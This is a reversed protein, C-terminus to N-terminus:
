VNENNMKKTEKTDVAAREEYAGEDPLEM